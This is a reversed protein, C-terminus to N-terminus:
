LLGDGLARGVASLYFIAVYKIEEGIGKWAAIRDL